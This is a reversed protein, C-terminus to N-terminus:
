DDENGSMENYFHIRANEIIWLNEKIEGESTALYFEGAKTFGLVLMSELEDAVEIVNDAIISPNIKGFTTGPFNIINDDSLTIKEM